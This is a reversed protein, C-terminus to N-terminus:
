PKWLARAQVHHDLGLLEGICVHQAIRAIHAHRLHRDLLHQAFLIGGLAGPQDAFARLGRHLGRAQRAHGVALSVVRDVHGHDVSVAVDDRQNLAVVHAETGSQNRTSRAEHQLVAARQEREVVLLGFRSAPCLRGSCM